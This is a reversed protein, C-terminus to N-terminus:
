TLVAGGTPALVVGTSRLGCLYRAAAGIQDPLGFRGLPIKDQRRRRYEQASIGVAAGMAAFADRMLSTDVPGPCIAHVRLEDPHHRRALARVLGVAAFKAACYASNDAEAYLGAQSALVIASGAAGHRLAPLCADLVNWVGTGNIRLSGDRVEDPLSELAGAGGVGHHVVLGSLGSRVLPHGALGAVGAEDTVDCAITPVGAEDALRDLAAEDIDTAVVQHGAALFARVAAGGLGGTAGTVLVPQERSAARRSARTALDITAGTTFGAVQDDSLYSLTAAIDDQPTDPGVVVTNVRIGSPASELAVAGVAGRVAELLAASFPSESEPRRTVVVVSPPRRRITRALELLLERSVDEVHTMWSAAAGDAVGVTLVQAGVHEVSSQTM